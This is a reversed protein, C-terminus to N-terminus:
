KNHLTDHIFPVVATPGGVFFYGGTLLFLLLAFALYSAKRSKSFKRGPKGLAVALIVIGLPIAWFPYTRVLIYFFGM